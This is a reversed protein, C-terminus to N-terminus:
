NRVDRGSDAFAIVSDAASIAPLELRYQFAIIADAELAFSDLGDVLGAEAARYEHMGAMRQHQRHGIHQKFLIRVQQALSCDENVRCIFASLRPEKKQKSM